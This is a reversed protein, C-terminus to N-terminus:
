GKGSRPRSKSKVAKKKGIAKAAKPPLTKAYRVSKAIWARLDDDADGELWGPPVVVYERMPRGGMPDFQEAGEEALLKARDSEALRLFLQDAFLGMFMNGGFFGCPCGFMTRGAGGTAPLLNQFLEVLAPSPKKFQM